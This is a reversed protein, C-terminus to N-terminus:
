VSWTRSNVTVAGETVVITDGFSNVVTKNTGSSRMVKAAEKMLEDFWEGTNYQNSRSLLGILNAATTTDM